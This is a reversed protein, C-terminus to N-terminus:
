YELQHNCVLVITMNYYGHTFEHCSVAAEVVFCLISSLIRAILAWNFPLRTGKDELEADAGAGTLRTNLGAARFRM